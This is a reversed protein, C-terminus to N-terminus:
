KTIFLKKTQSIISTQESTDTRCLDNATHLQMISIIEHSTHLIFFLDFHKRRVLANSILPYVPQINCNIANSLAVYRLGSFARFKVSNRNNSRGMIDLAQTVQISQFNRSQHEVFRYASIRPELATSRFANFRHAVPLKM